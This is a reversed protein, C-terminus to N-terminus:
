LSVQPCIARNPVVPDVVEGGGGADDLGVETRAGGDVDGDVPGVGLGVSEVAVEQGEIAVSKVRLAEVKKPPDPM